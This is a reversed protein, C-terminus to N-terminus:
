LHSKIVEVLDKTQILGAYRWLLKGNKFLALAPVSRIHFAAAIQPNKDIDIELYSISNELERRTTALIPTMTQCTGCWDAYFSVLKPKDDTSNETPLM